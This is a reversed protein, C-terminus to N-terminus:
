HSPPTHEISFWPDQLRNVSDLRSFNSACNTILGFTVTCKVELSFDWIEKLSELTQSKKKHVFIRTVRERADTKKWLCWFTALQALKLENCFFQYSIMRCSLRFGCRCHKWLWLFCLEPVGVWRHEGADDNIAKLPFVDRLQLAYILLNQTHM